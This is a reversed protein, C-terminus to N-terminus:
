QYNSIYYRSLERLILSDQDRRIDQRVLGIFPAYYEKTMWPLTETPSKYYEIVIIVSDLTSKGNPLSDTLTLKVDKDIVKRRIEGDKWYGVRWDDDKKETLLKKLPIRNDDQTISYEYVYQGNMKPVYVEDSKATGELQEFYRNKHYGPTVKTISGDSYVWYSEPYAPLYDKPFIYELETDKCSLMITTLMLLSIGKKIMSHTKM